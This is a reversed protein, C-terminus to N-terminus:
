IKGTEVSFPSKKYYLSAILSFGRIDQHFKSVYTMDTSGLRYYVDGNYELKLSAKANMTVPADPHLSVM